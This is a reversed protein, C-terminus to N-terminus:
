KIYLLERYKPLPWMEDDVLLELKDVNYRIVDFFPKVKECYAVAKKKADEIKNAKKREEIMLEVNKKITTVRESIETIIEMHPASLSKFSTGGIEKLGKVSQILKNQYTLATPIISNMAIDGIVRSEIQIKKTYTELYIEHRAEIERQSM